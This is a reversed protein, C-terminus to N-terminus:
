TIKNFTEWIRIIEKIAHEVDNMDYVSVLGCHEDNVICKIPEIDLVNFLYKSIIHEDYMWVVSGIYEGTAEDTLEFPITQRTLLRKTLKPPDLGYAEHIDEIVTNSLTLMGMGEEMMLLVVSEDELKTYEM